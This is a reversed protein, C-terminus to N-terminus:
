DGEKVSDLVVKVPKFSEVLFNYPNETQHGDVLIISMDCGYYTFPIIDVDHGNIELHKEGAFVTKYEPFIAKLLKAARSEPMSALENFLEQAEMINKPTQQRLGLLKNKFPPRCMDLIRDLSNSDTSNFNYLRNLNSDNDNVRESEKDLADPLKDKIFDFIPQLVYIMSSKQFEVLDIHVARATAEQESLGSNILMKIIEPRLSEILDSWYRDIINQIVPLKLLTGQIEYESVIPSIFKRRMLDVDKLLENPIEGNIQAARIVEGLVLVAEYIEFRTLNPAAQILYDKYMTFVKQSYEELATDIMIITQQYDQSLNSNNILLKLLDSRVGNVNRIFHMTTELEKSSNIGTTLLSLVGIDESLRYLEPLNQYVGVMREQCVILTDPQLKYFSEAFEILNHLELSLGPIAILELRESEDYDPAQASGTFLSRYKNFRDKNGTILFDYFSKLYDVENLSAYNHVSQHIWGLKNTNLGEVKVAQDRMMGRAQENTAIPLQRQLIRLAGMERQDMGEHFLRAFVIRLNTLTEVETRADGVSLQSLRHAATIRIYCSRRDEGSLRSQAIYEFLDILSEYTKCNEPKIRIEFMFDSWAKESNFLKRELDVYYLRPQKLLFTQFDSNKGKIFDWFPVEKEPLSIDAPHSLFVDLCSLQNAQLLSYVVGTTLRGDELVLDSIDDADILLSAIQPSNISLEKKLALILKTEEVPLMAMFEPNLNRVHTKIFQPDFLHRYKWVLHPNISSKDAVQGLLIDDKESILELNMLEEILRVSPQDSIQLQELRDNNNIIYLIHDLYKLDIHKRGDVRETGYRNRVFTNSLFTILEKKPTEEDSCDELAMALSESLEDEHGEYLLGLIKFETLGHKEIIDEPMLSSIKLVGDLQKRKELLQNYRDVDRIILFENGLVMEVHILWILDTPVSTIRLAKELRIKKSSPANFSNNVGHNREKEDNFEPSNLLFDIDSNLLHWGARSLMLLNNGDPQDFLQSLTELQQDLLVLGSKMGAKEEHNPSMKLRVYVHNELLEILFDLKDPDLSQNLISHLDLDGVTRTLQDEGIVVQLNTLYWIKACQDLTKIQQSTFGGARVIEALIRLEPTLTTVTGDNLQNAYVQSRLFPYNGIIQKVNEVVDQDASGFAYIVSLMDPQCVHSHFYGFDRLRQSGLQIVNNNLLKIKEIWNEDVQAIRLMHHSSFGQTNLELVLERANPVGKNILFRVLLLRFIREVLSNDLQPLDTIPRYNYETMYHYHKRRSTYYEELIKQEEDFRREVIELLAQIEPTIKSDPEGFNKLFLDSFRNASNPDETQM